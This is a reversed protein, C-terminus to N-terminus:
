SLRALHFREGGSVARGVWTTQEALQQLTQISWDETSLLDHSCELIMFLSHGFSMRARRLCREGSEADYPPALLYFVAEEVVRTSCESRSLGRDHPRGLIDEIVCLGHPGMVATLFNYLSALNDAGAVAFGGPIRVLESTRQSDSGDLTYFSRASYIRPLLLAPLYGYGETAQRFEDPTVREDRILGQDVSM